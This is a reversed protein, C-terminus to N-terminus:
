GARNKATVLPARSGFFALLAAVVAAALALALWTWGLGAFAALAILVVNLAGICLTM